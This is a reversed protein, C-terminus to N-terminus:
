SLQTGTLLGQWLGTDKLNIELRGTRVVRCPPECINPLAGIIPHFHSEFGDPSAGWGIVHYAQFLCSTTDEESWACRQCGKM